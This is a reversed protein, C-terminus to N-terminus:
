QRSQSYLELFLKEDIQTLDRRAAEALLEGGINNLMRINGCSHDAMTQKLAKTMLHSCGAQELVHGLYALLDESRYPQLMMRIRMRSGLALLADSRFREPLRNDGCLITTLLATSDFDASMMIRIENMAAANMEQAEDILLVPRYFTSKIHHHWRERLAKFGGYRNAPSLNVNFLSGMERYFDNLSSQPREMVGVVVDEIRSLRHAFLQLIKSKGLGPEGAILAFGGTAALRELRFVYSDIGPPSWLAELPIDPLFPNFKLGYLALLTKDNMPIRRPSIPQHFVPPRM